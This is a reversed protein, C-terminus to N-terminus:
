GGCIAQLRLWAGDPMIPAANTQGSTALGPLAPGSVALAAAFPAGSIGSAEFAARLKAAPVDPRPARLAAQAYDDLVASPVRGTTLLATTARLGGVELLNRLPPEAASRVGEALAYGAAVDPAEYDEVLTRDLVVRGGPLTLSLPALSPLITIDSAGTRRQLADLGAQAAGARCPAGTVRSMRDLLADGIQARTVQPVVRLAHDTLADPLWFVCLAAVGAVSVAAGLWRLRGTRPRARRVANRLTEIAGIMEDNDLELTESPDGEPHFIAPMNRGPAREIAALSWHALAQDALSSITLTADGLSVVVERRQAEPSARWLGTAELRQFQKLATM